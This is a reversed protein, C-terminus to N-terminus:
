AKKRCTMGWGSSGGEATWRAKLIEKSYQVCQGNEVPGQYGDLLSGYPDNMYYGSGDENRGRCVMWHGGSPASLPGHHLIGIGVPYGAYLEEDLDDFGMNQRYTGEVGYYPLAKLHVNPDTTDGINFVTKVYQDDGTLADKNLFEVIMAMSSSFCTRAADRYNDTQKWYPVSLLVKGSKKTAVPAAVVAPQPAAPQVWLNKRALLRSMLADDLVGDLSLKDWLEALYVFTLRRHDDLGHAKSYNVINEAHTILANDIETQTPGIM